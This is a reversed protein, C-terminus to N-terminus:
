WHRVLEALLYIELTAGGVLILSMLARGIWPLARWRRRLADAVARLRLETRDLARALPLSESALLGASIALFPIGPVPTFCLASGILFAVVALVIREVHPGIDRSHTSRRARWYRGQFRQGPEAHRFSRWQQKLRKLV